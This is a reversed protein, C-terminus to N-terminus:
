PTVALAMLVAAFFIVAALWERWSAKGEAIVNHDEDMLPTARLELVLFVSVLAFIFLGYYHWSEM